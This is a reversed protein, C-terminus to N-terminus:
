NMERVKFQNNLKIDFFFIDGIIQKKIIHRFYIAYVM